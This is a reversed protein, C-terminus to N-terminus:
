RRRKRSFRARTMVVALPWSASAFHGVLTLALLAFGALLAVSAMRTRDFLDPMARLRALLPLQHGFISNMGVAKGDEDGVRRLAILASSGLGRNRSSRKDVGRLDELDRPNHSATPAKSQPSRSIRASPKRQLSDRIRHSPLRRTWRLRIPPRRIPNWWKM